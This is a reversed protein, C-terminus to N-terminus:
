SAPWLDLYPAPDRHIRTCLEVFAARRDPDDGANFRLFFPRHNWDFAEPTLGEIHYLMAVFHVAAVGPDRVIRKLMADIVEPQPDTVIERLTLDLGDYADCTDIRKVLEGIREDPSVLDPAVYAVAARVEDSGTRLAHLLAERARPTDLMALAQADLFRTVDRSLLFQEIAKREEPSAERIADFDYEADRWNDATIETSRRFRDVMSERAAPTSLRPTDSM